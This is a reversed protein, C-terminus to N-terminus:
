HEEDGSEGSGVAAHEGGEVAGHGDVAGHGNGHGDPVVVTETFARNAVGRAWGMVGHTDPAPVGNEDPVGAAPLAAVEKKSEVVAREEDTLPRADEVFEGSPLQRIIGMEVGHTLLEADKRQLGLCIRKTVFYAGIPVVFVAVRAIWTVTYLPIDLKDAIVDNAGEALLVGVFCV